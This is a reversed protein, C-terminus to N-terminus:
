GGVGTTTTSRGPARWGLRDLRAGDDDVRGVLEAWPEPRGFLWGQGRDIGLDLLQDVQGPQTIGDATVEVGLAACIDVVSDLILRDSRRHGLGSVFSRDTRISPVPLRSLQRLSSTATGFDRVCISRGTQILRGVSQQAAPHMLAAEPVQLRLTASPLEGFLEEIDDALGGHVLEPLTLSVSLPFSPPSDSLWPAAALRLNCRSIAPVLGTDAAIDFYEHPLLFHNRPDLLDHDPAEWRMLAEAGVMQGTRLHVTPRYRVEFEDRDVAQRLGVQVIRRRAAREQLWGDYTAARSRGLEKARNLALDAKRLVEDADVPTGTPHVPTDAVGVSLRASVAVGDVDIPEVASAVMATALDEAEDPTLGSRLAVFEDGGVRYTSSGVVELLRRATAALIRDGTEHGLADNVAKFDDVDVYFAWLHDDDGDLRRGIEEMLAMRNGVGTLDDTRAREHLEHALGGLRIQLATQEQQLLALRFTSLLVAVVGLGLMVPDLSDIFSRHTAVAALTLLVACVGVREARRARREDDQEASHDGAASRDAAPDSTTRDSPTDVGRRMMSRHGAIVLAMPACLWWVFSGREAVDGATAFLGVVSTYVASAILLVAVVLALDGPGSGQVVRVLYVVGVVMLVALLLASPERQTVDLLGGEPGATGRLPALWLLALATTVALAADIVVIASWHVNSPMAVVGGVIIAVGLMQFATPGNSGIIGVTLASGLALVVSGLALVASGAAIGALGVRRRGSSRRAGVALMCAAVLLIGAGAVQIVADPRDLGVDRLASALDPWAAAAAGALAFAAAIVLLGPDRPVRLREMLAARSPSTPGVVGSTRADAPPTSSDEM